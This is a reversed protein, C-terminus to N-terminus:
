KNKLIKKRDRVWNELIKRHKAWDINEFKTHGVCVDNYIKLHNEMVYKEDESIIRKIEVPIETYTKKSM